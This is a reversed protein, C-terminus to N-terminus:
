GPNGSGPHLKEEEQRGHGAHHQLVRHVEQHPGGLARPLEEEPESREGAAHRWMPIIIAFVTVSQSNM